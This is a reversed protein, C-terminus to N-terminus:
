YIPLASPLNGAAGMSVPQSPTSFGAMFYYGRLINKSLVKLFRERDSALIADVIEEHERISERIRAPSKSNMVGVIFIRDNMMDYLSLLTKNPYRQLIYKHFYADEKMFGFADGRDAMVKQKEICQRLEDTDSATINQFAREGIYVEIAERAEYLDRVDNITLPSILVGKKPIISLMGEAELRQCASTVPTRGIQLLHSFYLISVVEGPEVKGRLILEKIQNYAAESENASGRSPKRRTANM